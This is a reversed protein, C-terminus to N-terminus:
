IGVAPRGPQNHSGRMNIVKLRRVVANASAEQSLFIIGDAITFESGLRLEQEDYEGLLLATADWLSLQVALNHVFRRLSYNPESIALEEIARFSDIAVVKASHARVKEGIFDLAGALGRQQLIEGLDYFRVQKDVKSRDFFTFQQQYRLIKPIPEGLTSFYLSPREATGTNFLVQQTMTTKGTGPPGAVITLSLAPLGGGLVDDLNPVGTAIREISVPEGSIDM